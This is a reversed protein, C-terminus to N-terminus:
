HKRLRVAISEAHALLGEATALDIVAPGIQELGKQTLRQVTIQRVFDAASLGGRGRAAGATPLVHNSGIAYDGAVQASWAGVFLSGACRVKAAMRDDDVVLHEAAAENALAIAESKSRTVIIGGHARISEAAPGTAPMAADVAAGVKNALARSTTILVARADPDHEAQAILDAAIWEAPGRTAVIVIETPGAYFDIGCDAAIQAKAAAVYRNGPGVIKDVRPVSATGYALAAIAQAGGIRFFRSVGAELAAAMVVADPKPCVAIVEKVGAVRAPIATMLVTSPLPYRGGPVYCGVRDLPVIRQEVTLGAGVRVKWGRPVQRRAVARINKAAVRIATRVRAPVTKARTQMEKRSIEIPGELHDFERAYRLLAAEGNTRVDAVIHSVRQETEGDRDREPWLLAKVAATDGAEVIRIM